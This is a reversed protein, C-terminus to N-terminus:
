SIEPDFNRNLCILFEAGENPKNRAKIKGNHFDEVITLVWSLGLGEGGEKDRTTVGYQFIQKIEDEDALKGQANRIGFGNDKVSVIIEDNDKDYITRVNVKGIYDIGSAKEKISNMANVVVNFIALKFLRPEIKMMPMNPAYESIIRLKQTTTLQFLATMEELVENINALEYKPKKIFSFARYINVIEQLFKTTNILGELSNEFVRDKESKESEDKEISKLYSRVALIDLKSTAIINTLDHGLNRSLNINAESKEKVILKRHLENTKIGSGIQVGILKLTELDWPRLKNIIRSELPLLGYAIVKDDVIVPILVGQNTEGNIDDLNVSKAFGSINDIVSCEKQEVMWNIKENNDSKIPAFIIKKDGFFPSAIENLGRYIDTRFFSKQETLLKSFEKTINLLLSDRAMKNYAKELMTKPSLILDNFNSHGFELKNMVRKMPLFVAIVILIYILSWLGVIKIANHRHRRTLDEIWPIGKPTTFSVAIRDKIRGVPRDTIATFNKLFLSNSFDNQARYKRPNKERIVEEKKDGDVKIFAIEVYINDDELVKKTASKLERYKEEREIPERETFFKFALRELDDLPYIGMLEDINKFILEKKTGQYINKDLNYLLLLTIIIYFIFSIILLSNRKIRKFLIM